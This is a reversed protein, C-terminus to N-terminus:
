IDVRLFDDFGDGVHVFLVNAAGCTLGKRQKLSYHCITKSAEGHPIKINEFVVLTTQSPFIASLRSIPSKGITGALM